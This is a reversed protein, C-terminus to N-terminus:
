NQLKRFTMRATNDHGDVTQQREVTLVEGMLSFTDRIEAVMEGSPTNFSRKTIIIVKDGETTVRGRETIGPPGPIDAETGDLKYVANLPDQRVTSGHVHLETETHNIVLESPIGSGRNGGGSTAQWKGTLRGSGTPVVAPRAPAAAPASATAAAARAQDYTAKLHKLDVNGEHCDDDLIEEVEGRVYPQNWKWTWPRTFAKPDTITAQWQLTNPDSLSFREVITLQDTAFDGGLAFWFKGNLNKTEVVLTDGEWYGVSDGFWLKVDSPLHTRRDMHITRTAHVYDFILLIDNGAYAVEFSFLMIRPMGSLICRGENDLYANEPKRHEDRQALAWPQYPIKGDPPDIVVSRGGQIGFGPPHEELINSSFLPGANWAGRLDPKGDPTRPMSALTARRTGGPGTEQARAAITSVSLGLVASM